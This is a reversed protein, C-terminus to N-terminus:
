PPGGPCSPPDQPGRNERRQETITQLLEAAREEMLGRVLTEISPDGADFSEPLAFGAARMAEDTVSIPTREGASRLCRLQGANILKRLQETNKGVAAGAEKLSLIRM